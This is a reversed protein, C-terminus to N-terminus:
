QQQPAPAGEEFKEVSRKDGHIVEVTYFDPPKVPVAKAVVIKRPRASRKMPQPEEPPKRAGAVLEDLSVARTVPREKDAGSRLVFQITAQNSALLLKQSDEPNLLLTVVNVTQPKGEPDPQIKQGATIVEVDQLITQTIPSGGGPPRFTALVDVRSGPYLFGAVGVIENSRVSTARMGPPIKATLGLGSGPAALYRDLIPEKEGIPYVLSRGVVEDIKAFAGNLQVTVPWDTTNLDEAKLVAGAPLEKASVVVKRMQITATQSRLRTYVFYTAGGSLLLAVLLAIVIRRTDL